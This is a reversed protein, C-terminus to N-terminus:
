VQPRLSIEEDKTNPCSQFFVSGRDQQYAVRKANHFVNGIPFIDHIGAIDHLLGLCLIEKGIRQM